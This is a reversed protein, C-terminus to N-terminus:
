KRWLSLFWIFRSSTPSWKFCNSMTLSWLAWICPNRRTDSIFIFIMYIFRTPSWIYLYLVIYIYFKFMFDLIYISEDYYLFCILITITANFKIYIIFCQCIYIVTLGQNIARWVKVSGFMWCLMWWFMTMCEFMFMYVFSVWMYVWICM